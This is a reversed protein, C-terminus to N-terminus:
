YIRSVERLELDLVCWWYKWKKRGDAKKYLFGEYQRGAHGEKTGYFVSQSGLRERADPNQWVM